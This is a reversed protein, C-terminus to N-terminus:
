DLVPLLLIQGPYIIPSKLDNLRGIEYVLPRLDGGHEQHEKAISWVTDGAAVVIAVTGRNPEIQSNDNHIFFGTLLFSMIFLVILWGWPRIERM